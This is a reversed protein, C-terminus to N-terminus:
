DSEHSLSQRYSSRVPDEAATGVYPEEYLRVDTSQSVLAPLDLKDLVEITCGSQSAPNAKGVGSQRNSEEDRPECVWDM